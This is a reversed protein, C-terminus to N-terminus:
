NMQDFLKSVVKFFDKFEEKQILAVIMETFTVMPLEASEKEKMDTLSALFKYIDQECYELNSLIVDLVEAIINFGVYSAMDGQNVQQEEQGEPVSQDVFVQMIDKINDVNLKDKLDKFGIKRLIKVMPFIDKSKLERFEFITNEM